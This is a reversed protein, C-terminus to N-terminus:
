LSAFIIIAKEYHLVARFHPDKDLLKKTRVSCHFPYGKKQFPVVDLLVPRKGGHGPDIAFQGFTLLLMILFIIAIIFILRQLYNM